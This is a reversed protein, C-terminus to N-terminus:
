DNTLLFLLRDSPKRFQIRRVSLLTNVIAYRRNKGPRTSGLLYPRGLREKLRHQLNLWAQSGDYYGTDERPIDIAYKFTPNIGYPNHHGLTLDVSRMRLKATM